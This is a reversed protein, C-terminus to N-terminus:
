RLTAPFKSVITLRLEQGENPPNLLLLFRQGDGTVDFSHQGGTRIDARFLERPTDVRIGGPGAHIAVAMIQGDPTEYYLERGDDRWQM